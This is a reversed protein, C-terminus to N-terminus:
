LSVGSESPVKVSVIRYVKLPPASPAPGASSTSAKSALPSTKPEADDPPSKLKLWVPQGPLRGPPHPTKNLTFGYDRAARLPQFYRPTENPELSRPKRLSAGSKINRASAKLKPIDPAMQASRNM